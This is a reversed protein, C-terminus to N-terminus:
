AAEAASKEIAEQDTDMSLLADAPIQRANSNKPTLHLAAVLDAPLRDAWHAALAALVIDNVPRDLAQAETRVLDDIALPLSVTTALRAFPSRPRRARRPRPKLEPEPPPLTTM